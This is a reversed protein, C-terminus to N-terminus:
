IGGLMGTSVGPDPSRPEGSKLTQRRRPGNQCRRALITAYFHHKQGFNPTNQDSQRRRLSTPERRGLFIRCSHAGLNWGRGVEAQSQNRPSYFLRAHKFYYNDHVNISNDASLILVFM